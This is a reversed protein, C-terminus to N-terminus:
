VKVTDPIAQALLVIKKAKYRALVFTQGKAKYYAESFRALHVRHNPQASLVDKCDQRFLQLTNTPIADPIPSVRSKRGTYQTTSGLTVSPSAVNVSAPKKITSPSSPQFFLCIGIFWQLMMFIHLYLLSYVLRSYVLSM